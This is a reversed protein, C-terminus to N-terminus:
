CWEDLVDLWKDVVSELSFDREAIVRAAMGFQYNLSDNELLTKIVEYWQEETEPGYGFQGLNLVDINMGVPSVVVPIGASMYQLMKFACKGRTWPDDDLPMLGLTWTPLEDFEINPYWKVFNCVNSLEIPIASSHSTVIRLEVEDGFEKLISCLAATIPEFYKLNSATGIWGIIKKGPKELRKPDIMMKNVDVGTPIIKINTNYRSFYEALYANGCVVGVSAKAANIAALGRKNLFIADDVDLILKGPLFREFTPITSILERQLITIDTKKLLNLYTFREWLAAFLWALRKYNEPPPLSSVKPTIENILIDHAAFIPKLVGIRYWGSPAVGSRTIANIKM